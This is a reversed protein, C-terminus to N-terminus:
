SLGLRPGTGLHHERQQVWLARVEWCGRWQGLGLALVLGLKWLETLAASGGRWGTGTPQGWLAPMPGNILWKVGVRLGAGVGVVVGPRRPRM